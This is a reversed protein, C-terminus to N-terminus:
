TPEWRKSSRPSALARCARSEWGCRGGRAALAQDADLSSEILTIARALTAREGKLVGDIYQEPRLRRM